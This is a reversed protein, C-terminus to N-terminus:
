LGLGQLKSCPSVGADGMWDTRMATKGGVSRETLQTRAVYTCSHCIRTQCLMLMITTGFEKVLYRYNLCCGEDEAASNGACGCATVNASFDSFGWSDIKRESLESVRTVDEDRLSGPGANVACDALGM